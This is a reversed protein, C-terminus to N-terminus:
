TDGAVIGVDHSVRTHYVVVTADTVSMVYILCEKGDSAHKPCLIQMLWLIISTDRNESVQM